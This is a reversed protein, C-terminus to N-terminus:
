LVLRIAMIMGVVLGAGTGIGVWSRRADRWPLFELALLRLGFALHLTLLVVLGWEAFKVWPNDTLRLFSDLAAEGDLATGLALFHLPLFLVLAIGSLRHGLSALYGPHRDSSRIM